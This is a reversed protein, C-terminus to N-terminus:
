APRAYRMSNRLGTLYAGETWSSLGGHAGKPSAGLRRWGGLCCVFLGLAAVSVVLNIPRHEWRADYAPKSRAPSSSEGKGGSRAELSALDVSAAAGALGWNASSLYSVQKLVPRKEVDFTMGSLLWQVIIIVPVLVLAKESTSVMASVLLGLATAALAALAVMVVLELIPLQLFLSARPGDARMVAVLVLLAAQVMSISGIVVMKSVLYASRSLGVSRERLYIASEKSRTPFATTTTSM